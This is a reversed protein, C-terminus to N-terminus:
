KAHRQKRVEKLVSKFPRSREHIKTEAIALDIIDARLRPNHVLGFIIANQETKPLARFATLFVEAKAQVSTM